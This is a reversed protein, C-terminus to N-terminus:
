GLRDNQVFIKLGKLWIKLAYLNPLISVLYNLEVLGKLFWGFFGSIVLFGVKAVAYKGGIPIIYPYEMPKYVKHKAVKSLGMELKIDQIVNWAVVNAQSIAARAVGPIPKGTNPDYFCVADGLAYTKSYLKLDPTEPVCEMKGIVEIRGKSETKLPLVSSIQSSKVGGAWILVDFFVFDGNKLLVKNKEVRVIPQNTIIGIGLNKLRKEAIKKVKSNFGALITPAAEIISVDLNCHLFEKRLEGSWAKLEGALEVGTSGGGGILIKISKREEILSWIKERILVADKFSKLPLANEKLGPIDFYNIESGLALVLYDSKISEKNNLYVNGQLLDINEVEAQIIKVGSNKLIYGINYTAIEHLNSISATEKSTTAVEYLLPTFTHHENRDVLVVEYKQLLHLAKLKKSILQAARLGGFGAGLIVINKKDMLM